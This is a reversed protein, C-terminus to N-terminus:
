KLRLKKLILLILEDIDENLKLQWVAIFFALCFITSKLIASFYPNTLNVFTLAFFLGLGIILIIIHNKTFPQIKFYKKIYYFRVMNYAVLTITTALAVGIADLKKVLIVYLPISLLIIVISTQFDLKWKKSSLMIQANLGACLDVLKGIGLILFLFYLEQYGKGFYYIITDMSLLMCCFIVIGITFLSLSTKAYLRKVRLFDNNSWAKVLTSTAIGNIGRLPVDIVAILYSAITFVGVSALGNNSQSSIVISAITYGVVNLVQGTFLFLCFQLMAKWARRSFQSINLSFHLLKNKYLIFFLIASILVNCLAFCIIFTKFNIIDFIKLLIIILYFIRTFVERLFNTIITKEEAWAVAELIFYFAAGIFAPYVLYFYEVFLYSRTGFKRVIFDEFVFVFSSLIVLGITALVLGLSFIENNKNHRKIIPSFKIIGPVSGFTALMGLLLGVDTIVKTLGFETQQFYKPFLVLTNLGGIAIGIYIFLTSIISQRRVVGM